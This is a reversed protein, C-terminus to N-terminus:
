HRKRKRVFPWWSKYGDDTTRLFQARDIEQIEGEDVDEDEEMTLDVQVISSANSANEQAFVAEPHASVFAFLQAEIRDEYEEHTVEPGDFCTKLTFGFGSDIRALNYPDDSAGDVAKLLDSGPLVEQCRKRVAEFIIQVKEVWLSKGIRGLNQQADQFLRWTTEYTANPTMPGIGQPPAMSVGPFMQRANWLVFPQLLAEVEQMGGRSPSFARLKSAIGTVGPASPDYDIRRSNPTRGRTVSTAHLGIQTRLASLIQEKLTESNKSRQSPNCLADLAVTSGRTPSSPIEEDVQDRTSLQRPPTASYLDDDQELPGSGVHHSNAPNNSNKESRSQDGAQEGNRAERRRPLPKSEIGVQATYPAPIVRSNIRPRQEFRSVIGHSLLHNLVRAHHDDEPHMRDAYENRLLLFLGAPKNDRCSDRLEESVTKWKDKEVKSYRNWARNALQVVEEDTSPKGLDQCIIPYAHFDFVERGFRRFCKGFAALKTKDYENILDELQSNSYNPHRQAAPPFSLRKGNRDCLMGQRLEVYIPWRVPFDGPFIQLLCQMGRALLDKNLAEYEQRAKETLSSWAQNLGKNAAEKQKKGCPLEEQGRGLNLISFITFGNKDFANRVWAKVVEDQTKVSCRRLRTIKRSDPAVMGLGTVRQLLSWDKDDREQTALQPPAGMVMISSGRSSRADDDAVHDTEDDDIVIISPQPSPSSEEKLSENENQDEDEGDEDEDEHDDGDEETTDAAGADRTTDATNGTETPGIAAKAARRTSTEILNINLDDLLKQIGKRKIEMTRQALFARDEQSVGQWSSRAASSIKKATDKFFDRKSQLREYLGPVSAITFLTRGDKSLGSNLWGGLASDPDAKMKKASPLSINMMKLRKRLSWRADTAGNPTSRRYAAVAENRIVKKDNDTLMKQKTKAEEKLRSPKAPINTEKRDASHKPPKTKAKSRKASKSTAMGTLTATTRRSVLRRLASNHQQRPQHPSLPSFSKPNNQTDAGRKQRARSALPTLRM